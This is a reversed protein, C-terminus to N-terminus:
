YFEIEEINKTVTGENILRYGYVNEIPTDLKIFQKFYEDNNLSLSTNPIVEQNQDLFEIKLKFNSDLDLEMKKIYLNKVTVPQEFRYQVKGNPSFTAQSGNNRILSEQNFVNESVVIHGSVQDTLGYSYVYSLINDNIWKDHIGLEPISIQHWRFGRKNEEYFYGKTVKAMKDRVDTRLVATSLINPEDYLVLNSNLVKYDINLEKSPYSNLVYDGFLEIEEINKTVTGENILRYGYVNEIPSDLKIFQKFFDDNSLVKSTNLIVEQNQDLFEIKLKFNSDLDLETKKIFLNKVTVPQEFRYHVKGNPSFTSQSGNNRILSEQNFVNESVVIRGSVQDTLGYSYVYSLINDNIWKDHIGLEPISIQHWRFGRKNEEYFYGKTVKAMKDRVDTRLVATSLINPEDYLVLNSNLVKYDINLEKSPYSNLVYDGFLEIEEISKTVTGENTLRYGYVNEIPSDLKIFQKFYEDNTLVKSTNPIVQHSQDLFEIKLKFASDLDLEMKKIFLNKVTVPQEFHYQVKGNPSITAQSGNNRILSEQNYVNTAVVIRGSVQDTLGYSYIYSLINDNIWKDHIGLEPISIQHWRFGQKNEEYFYGKTVKAMKDRIGTKLVSPSLVNPEDYLVISSNLVKYDINLEKSPYSNLVYDGFLEIEEINKTVTGENTLRYGYVNEIPSELKIFQKFYDDNNLILSTNPIVEQNQDLFEIKLKFNSDLDLEMKKIFLNEVTVPQEFRYQVKGNPSITAQSGNNRILSEQNYTNKSLVIRGSVQDTLGYSYVYSLINDNIWKDHIGLEPISIQHWRFGQKNEEYFYGKTVKAMKDRVGTKSVSPSLINPEDYLVLSSSLVKYDINLEKSPYSEKGYWGFLEIEKVNISTESTNKIRISYVDKVPDILELIENGDKVGTLFNQTIVNEEKDLFEVLMRDLTNTAGAYIRKVKIPHEFRYQVTGNPNFTAQSSNNRILSEQNYVNESVVIRGSVKDMLGNIYDNSMVENSYDVNENENENENKKISINKSKTWRYRDDLPNQIKYWEYRNEDPLWNFGATIQYVGGLPLTVDQYTESEPNVYFKDVSNSPFTISENLIEFPKANVLGYGFDDDKGETGIDEANKSLMARIEKNSALPYAQMYNAAVATVYPTAYSTGSDWGLLDVNVPYGSNPKFPNRLTSYIDEAPAALELHSGSNSGITFDVYWREKDKNIGGVAIVSEYKAPALTRYNLNNGFNKNGSGAILLIGKEYAEACIQELEDPNTFPGESWVLSMNIIDINNSPNEDDHTDIAWQIAKIVASIHVANNNDIARLSYLNADPAVGGPFREAKSGAIIGAVMTGHFYDTDRVGESCGVGNEDLIICDAGGVIKNWIYPHTRDIGSDIVAINIGKGTFGMNHTEEAKVMDFGYDYLYELSESAKSTLPTFMLSFLVLCVFVIIRTRKKM